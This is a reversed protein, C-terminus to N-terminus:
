ILYPPPPPPPYLPSLNSRVQFFLIFDLDHLHGIVWQIWIMDYTNPEPQFDQLGLCVCTVRNSDAGIYAPAANTLRPSQEILDIHAFRHLLLHKAVRGIGAGCDAAIDFRLDPRITSLKDIFANSGEVDKPTLKGYGGLVGDDTIPCNTESEWYNFARSYWMNNSATTAAGNSPVLEIEWLEQISGYEDDDNDTGSIEEGLVQILEQEITELTITTPIEERVFVSM